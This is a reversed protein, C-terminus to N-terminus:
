IKQFDNKIMNLYKFIQELLRAASSDSGTDIMMDCVNENREDFKGIKFKAKSHAAVYRVPISQESHLVILIDFPFDIFNKIISGSPKLQWNLSKRTFFDMGLKSFRMPPLNKKDYYGLALVDKQMARLDKVTKKILEYVKEQTSEYVIGITTASELSVASGTRKSKKVERSLLFSAVASKLKRNVPM